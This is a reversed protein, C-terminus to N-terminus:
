CRCCCRSNRRGRNVNVKLQSFSSKIERARLKEKEKIKEVSTYGKLVRDWACACMQTQMPNLHENSHRKEKRDIRQLNIEDVEEESCELM